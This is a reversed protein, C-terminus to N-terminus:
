GALRVSQGWVQMHAGGEVGAASLRQRYQLEAAAWEGAADQGGQGLLTFASPLIALELEKPSDAGIRLM